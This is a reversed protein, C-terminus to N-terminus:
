FCLSSFPSPTSALKEIDAKDEVPVSKNPGNTRFLFTKNEM